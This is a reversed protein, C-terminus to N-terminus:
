DTLCETINGVADETQRPFLDHFDYAITDRQNFPSIHQRPQFFHARAESLEENGTPNPGPHFILRGSPIWWNGNAELDVYGGQHGGNGGIIQNPNSILNEVVAAQSRKYTSALMGRTLSLQYTEGRIAMSGIEGPPLFESLDDKRYLVQSCRLLRKQGLSEDTIVTEFPVTPRGTVAEFNEGIFEQIQFMPQGSQPRCGYLQYSRTQFVRPLLNTDSDIVSNTYDTEDYIMLTKEQIDRDGGTLATKGPLRGYVIKLSKMAQGYADVQLLMEHQIRPDLDLQRDLTYNIVERAHVMYACHLHSDPQGQLVEITYNREAITYPKPNGDVSYVESRLTQGKLARCAERRAQLTSVELPFVTDPLLTSFYTDFPEDDSGGLPAGFYEHALFQSIRANDIYAGTHFWTKTYIPPVHSENRINSGVSSRLETM